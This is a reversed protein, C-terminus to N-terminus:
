GSKHNHFALDFVCPIEKCVPIYNTFFAIYADFGENRARRLPGTLAPSRKQKASMCNKLRLRPMAADEKEDVSASETSAIAQCIGQDLIKVNLLESGHQM